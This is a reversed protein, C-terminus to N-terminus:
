EQSVGRETAKREFTRGEAADEITRNSWFLMHWEMREALGQM